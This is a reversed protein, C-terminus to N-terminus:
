ISVNLYGVLGFNNIIFINFVKVAYSERLFIYTPSTKHTYSKPAAEGFYVSQPLNM